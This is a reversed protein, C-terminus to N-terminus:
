FCGSQQKQRELERVDENWKNMQELTYGKRRALDMKDLAKGLKDSLTDCKKSTADLTARKPTRQTELKITPATSPAVPEAHVPAAETAVAPKIRPKDPIPAPDIEITQATRANLCPKNTYTVTGKADICKNLTSQAAAVAPCVLTFILLILAPFRM